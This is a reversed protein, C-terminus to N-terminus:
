NRFLVYFAGKNIILLDEDEYLIDLDMKVPLINDSNDTEPVHIQLYDGAHLLQRGFGRQGNLSIATKDPKMSALINRSFGRSRLFELLQQGEQVEEIHYTLIRDM